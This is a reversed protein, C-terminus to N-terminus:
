ARAGVGVLELAPAEIPHQQGTPRSRHAPFGGGDLDGGRLSRPEGLQTNRGLVGATEPGRGIQILGFGSAKALIHREFGAHQAFGVANQRVAGRAIFGEGGFGLAAAVPGSMEISRALTEARLAAHDSREHAHSIPSARQFIAM